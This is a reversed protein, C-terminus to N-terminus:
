IKFFRVQTDVKEVIGNLNTIISSIQAAAAAVDNTSRASNDAEQATDNLLGGVEHISATIEQVSAAQEQSAAAVDGVNSNINTILDAIRTFTSLTQSLAKGGETVEAFTKEMSDAAEVTRGQLDAIIDAINEASKQTEQALTKVEDAVVAFGRGADGARAAEIAANLALLGTQDSIDRILGIIKGIEEMRTRIDGIIRRSDETSATIGEMGKDAIGARDAGEKSLDDAESTLRSVQETRLAVQNVTTNLDEMAKLVQQIGQSS